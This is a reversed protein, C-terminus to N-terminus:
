WIHVKGKRTQAKTCGLKNVPSGGKKLGVDFSHTVDFLWDASGSTMIMRDIMEQFLLYRKKGRRRWVRHSCANNMRRYERTTERRVVLFPPQGEKWPWRKGVPMRQAPRLRVSVHVSLTRNTTVTGGREGDDPHTEAGGFWCVGAGWLRM